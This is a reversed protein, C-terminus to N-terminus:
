RRGKRGRGGAVTGVAGTLGYVVAGHWAAAWIAGLAGGGTVITLLVALVAVSLGPVLAFRWPHAAAWRAARGSRARILAAAAVVVFFVSVGLSLSGGLAGLSVHGHLLQLGLDGLTAVAGVALGTAASAGTLAAASVTMEESRTMQGTNRPTTM